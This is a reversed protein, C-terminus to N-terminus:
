NKLLQYLNLYLGPSVASAGGLILGSTIATGGIFTEIPTPVTEATSRVLLVGSSYKAALVGGALADPFNTGTALFISKGNTNWRFEALALSTEYRNGGYIREIVLTDDLARLEDVVTDAIAGPGGVIVVRKVDPKASLLTKVSASLATKGNLLIPQGCRAAYAAASLADPFDLGSALYITDYSLFPHMAIERATDYRNEGAIRSVTTIGSITNIDSVVSDSIAGLGGLIIVDKAQLREIEARTSSPLADKTTLLIPANLRYALTVGALSDPFNTGVALIVTNSGGQCDSWGMQSVSVATSYRNAGALRDVPIWPPRNYRHWPYEDDPDFRWVDESWDTFIAPSPSGTMMSVTTLPEGKGTDTQGTTETDYYCNTLRVDPAAYGVLGGPYTGSNLSSVVGTAFCHFFDKMPTNGFASGCLGGVYWKGSASGAAYSNWIDGYSLGVLGGVYWSGTVPGSAFSSSIACEQRSVGVLGGIYNYDTGEDIEQGTVAGSASSCSIPGGSDGVLGGLYSYGNVDGEAHSSSIHCNTGSSGVLGGGMMYATVGGTASCNRIPQHANGALGGINSTGAVHGKAWSNHIPSLVVGVLGGVTSSGTVDGYAACDTIIAVSSQANMRGILGGAIQNTATVSGSAWSDQVVTSNAQGILGGITSYGTVDGEAYCGKVSATPQYGILGGLLNQGIVEGTAFCDRVPASSSGIVGGAISDEGSAIASEVAGTSSSDAVLATTTVAQGALGGLYRLGTVTAASESFVISGSTYGVLGGCDYEGLVSGSSTCGNFFSLDQAGTLGGVQNVGRVSTNSHCNRIPKDSKGILGGVWSDGIVTGNVSCDDIPGQAYGVLGGVLWLGSVNVNTLLVRKLQEQETSIIYGFLGVHNEGSRSITLNSISFGNGDYVGGFGNSETGIPEWGAGDSWPSGGLDIDAMQIYHGALNNRVNNLDEATYVYIPDETIRVSSTEIGAADVLPLFLYSLFFLFLILTSLKKSERM